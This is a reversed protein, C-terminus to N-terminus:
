DAFPDVVKGADAPKASEAARVAAQAPDANGYAGFVRKTPDLEAKLFAHFDTITMAAVQAALQDYYDDPLGFEALMTLRNAIEASSTSSALLSSLVKQRALVFAGRYSDPDRRIGDLIEILAGSAEAARTADVDGGITWMGGARRPEYSASFGYTLARKERLQALQGDLVSELVLRRPYDADIGQGGVYYASVEVTPSPKTATGNIFSRTTRPDLSVDRTHSGAAVQDTHYAIHKKVLEVDFQGAIVLTSNKPVIQSRAWSEVSDQSLHKVGETTISNRAYPHGEGYLAALIDADYAARERVRQPELRAVTYKKQEETLGYGPRRLELSISGVLDDVRISLNRSTFVMNDANVLAAGMMQSVGEKGFPDDSSGADVVLRAHVLPTEGHPWLVVSLGNDQTYRQAELLNSHPPAPLPTDALARDVPAVHQEVSGTFSGGTGASSVGSPQILIYHANHPSIWDEALHRTSGPSAERLMKIHGPLSGGPEFQQFDTYMENRGELSEWRALLIEVENEWNIVWNPDTKENDPGSVDYYMDRLAGSLRDRAEGVSEAKNLVIGVALVPARPGGLIETSASHGWGFMFAYTEYHGQIFPWALRLLQYESSSMAPLPWTALLTPEDVAASITTTEHPSSAIPVTIAAAPMRKPVHTFTKGVADQVAAENVAGSIAVVATGHRYPGVLFACVDEYTIKAVTEASDVRRYPHGVPYIQEYVLRRLVLGGSGGRQRLENQVVERERDFLAHSIGACGTALREGEIRMVAELNSPLALAEYNTYEETTEANYSLSVTAMDADLSIKAGDRDVELETLLHEVLHALGEKGVPDDISGIPYRVDVRIVTANPQPLVVFRYGRDSDFVDGATKVELRRDPDPPKLLSGCGALAL